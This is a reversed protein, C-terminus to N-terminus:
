YQASCKLKSGGEDRVPPSGKLLADRTRKADMGQEALSDEGSIAPDQMEIADLVTAIM